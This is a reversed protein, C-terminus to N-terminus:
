KILEKVGFILTMLSFLKTLIKTPIKSSFFIGFFVGLIGFICFYILPRKEILKNKIHVVSSVTAVCLFFMLSVMQSYIQQKSEFLTLYIILIFGGGLGMSATIGAIFGVIIRIVTIM